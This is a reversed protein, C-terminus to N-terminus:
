SDLVCMGAIGNEDLGSMKGGVDYTTCSASLNNRCEQTHVARM